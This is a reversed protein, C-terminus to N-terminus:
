AGTFGVGAVGVAVFKCPVLWYIGRWRCGCGCISVPRALLDWALSVWLWLNVRSSGTFGVVTVGM